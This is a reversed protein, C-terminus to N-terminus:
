FVIVITLLCHQYFKPWLLMHFIVAFLVVNDEYCKDELIFYVCGM